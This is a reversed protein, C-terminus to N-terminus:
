WLLQSLCFLLFHQNPRCQAYFYNSVPSSPTMPGHDPHIAEGQFSRHPQPIYERPSPTHSSSSSPLHRQDYALALPSPAPADYRSSSPANKDHKTNNANTNANTNTPSFLTASALPPSADLYPGYNQQHLASDSKARDTRAKHEQDYPHCTEQYADSLSASRNPPHPPTSFPPQSPGLGSDRRMPTPAFTRDGDRFSKIKSHDFPSQALPYPDHRPQFSDHYTASSRRTEGPMKPEHYDKPYSPSHTNNATDDEHIAVLSRQHSQRYSYPQGFKYHHSDHPASMSSTSSSSSSPQPDWGDYAYQHRSSIPPLTEPEPLISRDESHPSAEVSCLLNAIPIRSNQRPRRAQEDSSEKDLNHKNNVKPSGNAGHDTDNLHTDEHHYDVGGKPFPRDTLSTMPPMRTQPPSHHVTPSPSASTPARRGSGDIAKRPSSPSSIPSAPLSSLTTPRLSTTRDILSALSINSINSIRSIQQLYPHSSPHAFPSSSLPSNVPLVVSSSSGVTMLLITNKNQSPARHRDFHHLVSSQNIFHLRLFLLFGFLVISLLPPNALLLFFVFYYFFFFPPSM